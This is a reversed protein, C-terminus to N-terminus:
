QAHWDRHKLELQLQHCSYRHQKEHVKAAQLTQRPLLLTPSRDDGM